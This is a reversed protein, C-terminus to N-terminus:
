ARYITSELHAISEKCHGCINVWSNVDNQPLKHQWNIGLRLTMWWEEMDLQDLYPTCHYHLKDVPAEQCCTWSGIESLNFSLWSSTQSSYVERSSEKHSMTVWQWERSSCWIGSFAAHFALVSIPSNHFTKKSVEAFSTTQHQWSVRSKTEDIMIWRPIHKLFNYRHRLVEGGFSLKPLSQKPFDGATTGPLPSHKPFAEAQWPWPGWLTSRRWPIHHQEGHFQDHSEFHFDQM